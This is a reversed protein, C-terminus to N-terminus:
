ETPPPDWSRDQFIWEKFAGTEAASNLVSPTMDFEMGHREKMVKKIADFMANAIANGYLASITLRIGALMTKHFDMVREFDPNLSPPATAISEALQMALETVAKQQESSMESPAM